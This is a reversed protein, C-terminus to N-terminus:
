RVAGLADNQVRGGGGVSAVNGIRLPHVADRDSRIEAASEAAVSAPVGDGDEIEFSQFGDAGYLGVGIGIGDDVVGGRLADEGKVAASLVGGYDVGGVAGNDARNGEAALGFERDGVVFPADVDVGFVGRLKMM